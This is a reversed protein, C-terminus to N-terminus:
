NRLILPLSMDAFNAVEVLQTTEQAQTLFETNKCIVKISDLCRVYEVLSYDYKDGHLEKAKIIFEETSLRLKKAANDKGCKPCGKASIFKKATISFKGHEQCIADVPNDAGNFVTDTLDYLDGHKQRVLYKFYATPETCHRPSVKKPPWNSRHIKFVFGFKECVISDGQKEIFELGVKEGDAKWDRIM